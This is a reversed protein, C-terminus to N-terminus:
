SVIAGVYQPDAQLFRSCSDNELGRRYLILVGYRAQTRGQPGFGPAPMGVSRRMGGVRSAVPM